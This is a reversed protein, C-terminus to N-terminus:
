ALLMASVTTDGLDVNTWMWAFAATLQATDLNAGHASPEIGLSDRRVLASILVLRTAAHLTQRVTM